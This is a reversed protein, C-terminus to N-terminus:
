AICFIDPGAGRRLVKGNCTQLPCAGKWEVQGASETALKYRVLGKGNCM